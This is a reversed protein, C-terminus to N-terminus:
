MVIVRGVTAEAAPLPPPPPPAFRSFLTRVTEFGSIINNQGPVLRVRTTAPGEGSMPMHAPHDDELPAAVAPVPPEEEPARESLLSTVQRLFETKVAGSIIPTRRITDVGRNLEIQCDEQWKEVQKKMTRAKDIREASSTKFLSGLYHSLFLSIGVLFSDHNSIFTDITTNLGRIDNLRNRTTIIHNILDIHASLVSNGTRNAACLATLKTITAHKLLIKIYPAESALQNITNDIENELIGLRGLTLVQGAEDFRGSLAIIYNEALSRLAAKHQEDASAPTYNNVTQQWRAPVFNRYARTTAGRLWGGASQLGTPIIPTPTELQIVRRLWAEREPESIQELLAEIRDQNARILNLANLAPQNRDIARILEKANILHTKLENVQNKQRILETLGAHEIDLVDKILHIKKLLPRAEALIAHIPADFHEDLTSATAPRNEPDFFVDPEETAPGREQEELPTGLFQRELAAIQEAEEEDVPEDVPVILERDLAIDRAIAEAEAELRAPEQDIDEEEQQELENDNPEEELALPGNNIPAPTAPFAEIREAILALLRRINAKRADIGITNRLLPLLM